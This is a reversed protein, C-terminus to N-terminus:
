EMKPRIIHRKGPVNEDSTPDVIEPTFDCQLLSGGPRDLAAHIHQWVTGTAASGLHARTGFSMANDPTRAHPNTLFSRIM